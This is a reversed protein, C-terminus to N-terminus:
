IHIWVIVPGSTIFGNEHEVNIRSMFTLIGVMGNIQATKINIFLKFEMSLRTSCSKKKIVESITFQGRSKCMREGTLVPRGSHSFSLWAFINKEEHVMQM